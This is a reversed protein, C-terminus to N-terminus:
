VATLQALTANSLATPFLMVRRIPQHAYYRDQTSGQSLRMAAGIHLAILTSIRDAIFPSPDVYPLVLGNLSNTLTPTGSISVASKNVGLSLTGLSTTNLNAFTKDVTSRAGAYIGAGGQYGVGFGNWATWAPNVGNGVIALAGVDTGALWAREHNWEVYLTAETTSYCDTFPTGAVPMLEAARTATAGATPIFSTEVGGLECQAWKVTGSVTCTLAGAAPTFTLATRTTASTGTVTASHAGSLVISGTGYFSISWAAATVTVTQTALDTGDLLSNLFSNVRSAEVLLGRCAKTASNFTIRPVDNAATQMVGKAGFYTATSARTFTVIDSLAKERLGTAPSYHRYVQNVFDLDLTPNLGAIQDLTPKGVLWADAKKDAGGQVVYLIAGTLDTAAPLASIKSDAM